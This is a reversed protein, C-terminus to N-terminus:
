EIKNNEFTLGLGSPSSPCGMSEESMIAIPIRDAAESQFSFYLHYIFIIIM